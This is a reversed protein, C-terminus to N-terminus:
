LVSGEVGCHTYMLLMIGRRFRYMGRDVQGKWEWVLELGGIM